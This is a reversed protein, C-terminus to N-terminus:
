KVKAEVSTIKAKDRLFKLTREQRLRFELDGMQGPNKAYFEKVKAEEIQMSSAMHSLEQNLDDSSVKLEEEQAIAELILSARVQSEARKKLQALESIVAQQIQQEPYGQQKLEQIWDQMLARVQADVLSNPVEFPNKEILAAIIQSQINKQNESNRQNELFEQAKKRLDDMNEYGMQKIFEENLEPLKKEKLENVTVTFEAQKGAISKEHYDAPFEIKFTKTEGARMGIIQDEFGPIMSNSGIEILRDGTMEPRSEVGSETVLGGAFRTDAFDGKQAPRSTSKGEASVLGGSVSILEAQSNQLNEIVRDVMESTISSAEETLSLGKYNKVTVEPMVEFTATYVLDQGEGISHDHAGEGTKHEPTDIKPQGVAKFQHKKVAEDFSSDILTHFVKHKVDDGYFQKIIAIPAQGPRFGKLKATKQVSVLGQELHSKVEQAPVRVTIKRLISSPKEVEVNFEM